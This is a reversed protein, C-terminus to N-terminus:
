FERMFGAQFMHPIDIDIIAESLVSVPIKAEKKGHIYLFEGDTEALVHPLKKYILYPRIFSFYGIVGFFIFTIIVISLITPNAFLTHDHILVTVQMVLALASM